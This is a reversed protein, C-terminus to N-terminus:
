RSYTLVTGATTHLQYGHATVRISAVPAALHTHSAAPSGYWPADYNYVNGASTIVYYGHGNAALAIDAISGSFHRGAAAPSGRWRMGHTFVNGLNTVQCRAAGARATAVIYSSPAAHLATSPLSNGVSNRAYVWFIHEAGTLLGTVTFSRASSPTTALMRSHPSGAEWIEYGTVPQGGDSAPASWHLTVDEFGGRASPNQPATPVTPCPLFTATVSGNGTDVTTSDVTAGAPALNSGGGGGAGSGNGLGGGGGGYFGGGGGGGVSGYPTSDGDGGVAGVGASGGGVASGPASSTAGNPLPQYTGNVAYYYTGDEGPDAGAGGYGQFGAGGGGAAVIVPSSAGALTVSSAGGGGGGYDPDASSYGGAGGSPQGGSLGGFGGSSGSTPSGGAGGVAIHYQAGATVTLTAEVAGGDAGDAFPTGGQDSTGGQGGVADFTIHCVGAPVTLTATTTPDTYTVPSPVSDVAAQAAPGAVLTTGALLASGALLGVGALTGAARPRGAGRRGASRRGADRRTNRGAKPSTDDRHM